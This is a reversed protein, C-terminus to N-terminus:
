PPCHLEIAPRISATSTIHPALLAAQSTDRGLGVTQWSMMRQSVPPERHGALLASYPAISAPARYQSSILKIPALRRTHCADTMAAAAPQAWPAVGEAPSPSSVKPPPPEPPPALAAPQEALTGHAGPLAQWLPAHASPHLLSASQSAESYQAFPELWNQWGRSSEIQGSTGQAAVCAHTCPKHAVCVPVAQPGDAKLGPASPQGSSSSQM